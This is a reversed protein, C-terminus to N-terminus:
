DDAGQLEEPQPGTGAAVSQGNRRGGNSELRETLKDLRACRRVPGRRAQTGVAGAEGKVAPLALRFEALQGEVVTLGARKRDLEAAEPGLWLELSRSWTPSGPRDRMRGAIGDANATM